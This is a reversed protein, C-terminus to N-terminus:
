LPSRHDNEKKRTVATPGLDFIRGANFPKYLFKEWIPKQEEKSQDEVKM